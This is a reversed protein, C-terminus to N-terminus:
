RVDGAKVLDTMKSRSIKFGAGAISDLRLSAEFTKIHEVKLEPISLESLAIQRSQVSVSRVQEYTSGGEFNKSRLKSQLIDPGMNTYPCIAIDLGIKIFSSIKTYATSM